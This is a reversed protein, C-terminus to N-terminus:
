CIGAVLCKLCTYFQTFDPSLPTREVKEDGSWVDESLFVGRGNQKNECPRQYVEKDGANEETCKRKSKDRSPGKGGIGAGSLATGTPTSPRCVRTKARNHKPEVQRKISM